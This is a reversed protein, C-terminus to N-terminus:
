PLPAPKPTGIWWLLPSVNGGKVDACSLLNGPRATQAILPKYIVFKSVVESLDEKLVITNEEM